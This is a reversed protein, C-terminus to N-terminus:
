YCVRSDSYIHMMVTSNIWAPNSGAGQLCWASYIHLVILLKVSSVCSHFLSCIDCIYKMEILHWDVVNKMRHLGGAMQNFAIYMRSLMSAKQPIVNLSLCGNVVIDEILNHYIYINKFTTSCCHVRLGLGMQGKNFGANESCFCFYLSLLKWFLHRAFYFYSIWKSTDCYLLLKLLHPTM